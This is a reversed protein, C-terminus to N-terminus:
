LVAGLDDTRASVKRGGMDEGGCGERGLGVQSIVQLHREFRDIPGIFLIPLM